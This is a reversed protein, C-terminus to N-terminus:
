LVGWLRLLAILIGVAGLALGIYAAVILGRNRPADESKEEEPAPPIVAAPELVDIKGTGALPPATKPPSPIPAGMTPLLEQVDPKPAVQTVMEAEEDEAESKPASEVRATAGLLGLREATERASAPRDEPRKELLARITDEWANPIAEASGHLVQRRERISVPKEDRLRAYDVERGFPPEGTLLEYLTSGLAYLDDSPLPREGAAQQPSMYSMTGSANSGTIRTISENASAAIGFDTIKLDDEIDLLLNGPKLDRHIIHPKGHAYALADCLQTTWTAIDEVQFFPLKRRWRRQMLNEGPVFEMAICALGRAPDEVLSHVRVINPHTLQLARRTERKLDELAAADQALVDHLFKLAVPLDLTEDTARFVTGMGGQGMWEELRYRDAIRQGVAPRSSGAAPSGTEENSM